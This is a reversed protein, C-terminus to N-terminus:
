YIIVKHCVGFMPLTGATHLRTHTHTHTHTVPPSSFLPSSFLFRLCSQVSLYLCNVSARLRRGECISEVCVSFPSLSLYLTHSLSRSFLSSSTTTDTSVCNSPPGFACLGKTHVCVNPPSFPGIRWCIWWCRLGLSLSPPCLSLVLASTCESTVCLRV